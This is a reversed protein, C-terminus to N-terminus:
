GENIEMITLVIDPHYFRDVYKMSRPPYDQRWQRALIEIKKSKFSVPTADWPLGTDRVLMQTVKLRSQKAM